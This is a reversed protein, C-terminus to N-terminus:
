FNWFLNLWHSTFLVLSAFVLIATYVKRSGFLDVLSGIVIRVPIALALNCVTLLKIQEGNLGMTKMLPTNFPAMNLCAVFSLFICDKNPSPNGRVESFIPCSRTIM